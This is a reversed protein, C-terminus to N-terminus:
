CNTNLYGWEVGKCWAKKTERRGVITTTVPRTLLCVGKHSAGAKCGNLLPHEYKQCTNLTLLCCSRGEGLTEEQALPEIPVRMEPTIWRHVNSWSLYRRRGGKVSALKM